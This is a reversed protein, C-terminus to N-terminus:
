EITHIDLPSDEGETILLTALYQLIIWDTGRSHKCSRAIPPNRLLNFSNHQKLSSFHMLEQNRHAIKTKSSDQGVVHVNTYNLDSHNLSQHDFNSTGHPGSLCSVFCKLNKQLDLCLRADADLVLWCWGASAKQPGGRGPNAFFIFISQRRTILVEHSM